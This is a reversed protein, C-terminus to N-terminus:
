FEEPQQHISNQYLETLLLVIRCVAYSYKQAPTATM